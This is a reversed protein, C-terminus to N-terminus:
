VSLLRVSVSHAGKLAQKVVRHHGDELYYEGEWLIVHPYPDGFLHNFDDVLAHFYVGRQTAILEKIPVEVVPVDLWKQSTM